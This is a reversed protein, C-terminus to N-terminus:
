KSSTKKKQIERSHLLQRSNMLAAQSEKPKQTGRCLAVTKLMENIKM